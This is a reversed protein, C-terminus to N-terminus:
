LDYPVNGQVALVRCHNGFCDFEQDFNVIVKITIHVTLSDRNLITENGLADLNDLLILSVFSNNNSGDLDQFVDHTLGLSLACSTNSRM